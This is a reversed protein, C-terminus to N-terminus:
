TMDQRFLYSDFGGSAMPRGSPKSPRAGWRLRHEEPPSYLRPKVGVRMPASCTNPWTASARPSTRTWCRGCRPSRRECRTPSPPATRRWPTAVTEGLAGRRCGGASALRATPRHRRPRDRSGLPRHERTPLPPVRGADPALARQRSPLAGPRGASQAAADGAGLTGALRARWRAGPFTWASCASLPSESNASLPKVFRTPRLRIPGSAEM